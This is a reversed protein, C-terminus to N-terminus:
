TSVARAAYNSSCHSHQAPFVGAKLLQLVGGFDAMGGPCLCEWCLRAESQLVSIRVAVLSGVEFPLQKLKFPLVIRILPWINQCSDSHVSEAETDKSQITPFTKFKKRGQEAM